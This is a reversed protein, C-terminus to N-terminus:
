CLAELSSLLLAHLSDFCLFNTSKILAFAMSFDLSFAYFINSLIKRYKDVLYICYSDLTVDYGCLYSLSWFNEVNGGPVNLMNHDYGLDIKSDCLKSVDNPM